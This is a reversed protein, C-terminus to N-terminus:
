GLLIEVDQMILASQNAQYQNLSHRPCTLQQHLEEGNLIPSTEVISPEQQLAALFLDYM